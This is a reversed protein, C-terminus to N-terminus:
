VDNFILEGLRAPESLHSLGSESCGTLMGAVLALTWGAMVTIVRQRAVIAGPQALPPRSATDTARPTFHFKQLM